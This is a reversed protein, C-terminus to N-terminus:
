TITSIILWYQYTEKIAKIFNEFNVPKCIYSNCGLEYARDIDEDRSSSTLVLIPMKKYKNDSKLQSLVEFGNMKPMNLDLLMLSPKPAETHSGKKYLFDIAEEGDKVVYLPNRINGKKWARRTILIDDPNDEAMLFPYHNPDFMKASSASETSTTGIEIQNSDSM